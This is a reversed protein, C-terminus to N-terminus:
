MQLQERFAALLAQELAAREVRIQDGNVLLTIGEDLMVLECAIELEEGEEWTLVTTIVDAAEDDYPEDEDEEEWEIATEVQGQGDLLLENMDAILQPIELEQHRDRLQQRESAVETDYAELRAIRTARTETLEAKLDMLSERWPM